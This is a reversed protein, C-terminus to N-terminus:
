ESPQLTDDRRISYITVRNAEYAYHTEMGKPVGRSFANVFGRAAGRDDFMLVSRCIEAGCEVSEVKRNPSVESRSFAENLSAEAASGWVRDGAQQEFRADLAAHTEQLVANEDAQQQAETRDEEGNVADDAEEFSTDGVTAVPVGRLKVEPIPSVSAIVRRVPKSHAVSRAQRVDSPGDGGSDDLFRGLSVGVIVLVAVSGGTVWRWM